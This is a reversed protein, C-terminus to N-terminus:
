AARRPAREGRDRHLSRDGAGQDRPEVSPVAAWDLGELMEDLFDAYSLERKAAQELLTTLDAAVRHLRLRECHATLRELQPTTM